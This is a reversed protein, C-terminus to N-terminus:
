TIRNIDRKVINGGWCYICCYAFVSKIILQYCRKSICIDVHFRKLKRLCYLHSNEKSIFFDTNHSWSFYNNLMVLNHVCVCEVTHDNIIIPDPLVYFLLFNYQSLIIVHMCHCLMVVHETVVYLSMKVVYQSMPKGYATVCYIWMSHCLIDVYQSM